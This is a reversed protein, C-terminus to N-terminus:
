EVTAEWPGQSEKGAPGLGIKVTGGEGDATFTCDLTGNPRAEVLDPCEVECTSAIGASQVLELMEKRCETSIAETPILNEIRYKGDEETSQVTAEVPASTGDAASAQCTIRKGTEVEISEPCKVEPQSAGYPRAALTAELKEEVAERSIGGGGGGSTALVIAVVIAAIVVVGILLPVLRPPLSDRWGGGAAPAPAAPPPAGAQAGPAAAAPGGGEGAERQSAVWQSRTPLEGHSALDFGCEPCFANDDAATGCRPCVRADSEAM